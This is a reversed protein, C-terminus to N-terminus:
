DNEDELDGGTDLEIFPLDLGTFTDFDMADLYWVIILMFLVVVIAGLVAIFPGLQMWPDLGVAVAATNWVSQLFRAPAGFGADILLVTVNTFADTPSIILNAFAEGLGILITFAAAALGGVGAVFTEAFGGLDRSFTIYTRAQDLRPGSSSM